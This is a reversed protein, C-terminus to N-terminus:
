YTGDAIREAIVAILRQRDRGTVTRSDSYRTATYVSSRHGCLRGGSWYSNAKFHWLQGNIIESNRKTPRPLTANMTENRQQHKDIEGRHIFAENKQINSYIWDHVEEVDDKSTAIHDVAWGHGDSLMKDVEHKDMKLIRAAKEKIIKLNSFFMYNDFEEERDPKENGLGNEM